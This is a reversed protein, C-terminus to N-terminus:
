SLFSQPGMVKTISNSTKSTINDMYIQSFSSKALNGGFLPKARSTQARVHRPSLYTQLGDFNYSQVAAKM